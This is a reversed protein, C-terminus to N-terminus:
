VSSFGQNNGLSDETYIAVFIIQTINKKSQSMVQSRYGPQTTLDASGAVVQSIEKPYYGKKIRM